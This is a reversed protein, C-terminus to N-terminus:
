LKSAREAATRLGFGRAHEVFAPGVYEFSGTYRSSSASLRFKDSVERASGCGVARLTSGGQRGFMLSPKRVMTWNKSRARHAVVAPHSTVSRYPKGTAAYVGAILDAMATGLGVGQFDPLCVTRHERWGSRTPHPFSVVATFTAPRGWVEGVYCSALTSLSESLYHHRRFLNWEARTGKRVRLEVVPRAQVTRRAFTGALTNFVWDPQLWEEVDEHCTVAVFQRRTRRVCKAVAASGVKAVVRDVVSTFEDFVTVGGAGELLARALTVRFQEGNSLCRFPRRWAPPSSLGVSSLCGVIEKVGAAAPFGDLISRNEPWKFGAVVRGPWAERALSSKGSGSPGVVLGVLWPWGELPLDAALRFSCKTTPPMDFMGEVQAVRPTREVATEVLVNVSPM